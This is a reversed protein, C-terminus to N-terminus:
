QKLARKVEMELQRSHMGAGGHVAIYAEQLM